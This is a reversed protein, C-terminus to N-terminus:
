TQQLPESRRVIAAVGYIPVDVTDIGTVATVAATDASDAPAGERSGFAVEHRGRYTNDDQAPAGRGGLERELAAAIEAASRYECDPMELENGLVRLLRWGPRAEGVPNAAADFSQWRGEANVYTGATEVFTGIPLLVTALELLSESAYPTLAVVADAAGLARRVLAADAFDQDPELGHLLYARRPQELMARADLGAPERPAGGAA